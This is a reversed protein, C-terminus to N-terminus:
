IDRSQQVQAALGCAAISLGVTIVAFLFFRLERDSGAILYSLLYGACLSGGICLLRVLWPRLVYVKMQFPPRVKKDASLQPDDKEAVTQSRTKSPSFNLDGDM